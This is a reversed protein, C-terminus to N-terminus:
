APMAIELTGFPRRLEPRVADAVHPVVVDFAKRVMKSLARGLVQRMAVRILVRENQPEEGALIARLPPAQGLGKDIHDPRRRCVAPSQADERRHAGAIREPHQEQAGM